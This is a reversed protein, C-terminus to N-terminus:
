HFRVEACCVVLFTSVATRVMFLFCSSHFLGIISNFKSVHQVQFRLAQLRSILVTALARRTASSSAYAGAGTAAWNGVFM